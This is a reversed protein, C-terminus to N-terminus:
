VNAIYILLAVQIRHVEPAQHVTSYGDLLNIAFHFKLHICDVRIFVRHFEVIITSSGCHLVDVCVVGVDTLADDIALEEDDAIALCVISSTSEYFLRSSSSLRSARSLRAVYFVAHNFFWATKMNMVKLREGLLRM